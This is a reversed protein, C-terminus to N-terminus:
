LLRRDLRGIASRNTAVEDNFKQEAKRMEKMFANYRRENLREIIRRRMMAEELEGRRESAKAKLEHIEVDKDDVLRALHREYQYYRRIDDTDFETSLASGAMKLMHQQESIMEERESKAIRVDRHAVALAQAKIDEQRKRIRQLTLHQQLRKRLM